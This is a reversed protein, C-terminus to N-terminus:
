KYSENTVSMKTISPQSINKLRALAQRMTDSDHVARIKAAYAPDTAYGSEQLAEAFGAIDGGHNRVSAYRPHRSLFEAYDDFTEAVNTYARFRAVERRAVGHDFEITPKVVTEGQWGNGAKIGFLNYSPRGDAAPSVHAGWGTELAAQALVAEPTVNLKSAARAAHPWLDSVFADASNWRGPNNRPGDRVPAALNPGTASPVSTGVAGGLQRVLMDALGIGRGGAMELSLQQDMMEQYMDHQGSSGFIPDALSSQRMNKLMSQLFLAEFQGAVERLVAPDRQDAAARLGAFQTFDTIAATM